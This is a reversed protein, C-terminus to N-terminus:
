AQLEGGSMSRQLKEVAHAVFGGVEDRSVQGNATWDHLNFWRGAFYDTSTALTAAYTSLGVMFQESEAITAYGYEPGISRPLM